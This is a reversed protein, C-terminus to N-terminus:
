MASIWRHVLQDGSVKLTTHLSHETLGPIVSWSHLKAFQVLASRLDYWPDDIGYEQLLSIKDSVVLSYLSNVSHSILIYDLM